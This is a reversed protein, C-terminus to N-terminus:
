PLAELPVAYVEEGRRGTHSLDHWLETQSEFERYLRLRSEVDNLVARQAIPGRAIWSDSDIDMIESKYPLGDLYEGLLAGVNSAQGLQAIRQPDTAASAFASRLQDFFTEPATRGALGAAMIRQLSAALDSLQNRTLLVRVDLAFVDPNALDRDTTWSSQLDPARAADAQRVDNLRMAEGVVRLQQQIRAADPLAAGPPLRLSDLPVGTAAAVNRLLQSVLLQMTDRFKAPDGGEVPFYLPETGNFRSLDRYTARAPDHDGIRAGAPTLLHVVVVAVQKEAAKIRLESTGMRTISHPHQAGRAGADTILVIYRGSLSSWDIENLTAYLGGLPDEDFGTSSVRSERLQGLAALVADPPQTFDPRAYVKTSYDLGPNDELSDRYAVVGFRFNDRVATTGIADVVAKMAVRTGEIYPQMSSTTDILFVVGAKYDRLSADPFPAAPPDAPASVVNLIRLAPGSEREVLDAGLIPLLYFNRNIDVFAAPELAVVPGPNGAAAAARLREAKMGADLDMMLLREDRETGLFLVPKRVGPNTFSAVMAHKWDIARAGPLWGATRGDAAAGVEVFEANASGQRAYVYFVTFAPVPRDGPAGPSSALVAGPRVIVRQFLSTKGPMLLPRREAQAPPPAQGFTRGAAVLGVSTGAASAILTRRKM